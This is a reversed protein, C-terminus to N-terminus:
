QKPQNFNYDDIKNKFAMARANTVKNLDICALFHNWGDEDFLEKLDEVQKQLESDYDPLPCGKLIVKGLGVGTKLYFRQKPNLKKWEGCKGVKPCEMCDTIIIAKKDSM